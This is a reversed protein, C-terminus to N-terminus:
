DLNPKFAGYLAGLAGAFLPLFAIGMLLGTTPCGHVDGWAQGFCAPFGCSAVDGAFGIIAGMKLGKVAGRLRSTADEYSYGQDYRDEPNISKEGCTSKTERDGYCNQKSIQAQNQIKMHEEKKQYKSITSIILIATSCFNIL